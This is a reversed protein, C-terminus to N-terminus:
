FCPLPPRIPIRWFIRLVLFYYSRIKTRPRSLAPFVVMRLDRELSTNEMLLTLVDVGDSWGLAEVDFVEDVLPEFEVEPVDSPLMCQPLVPDVVDIICIGQDIDNIGCIGVSNFLCAKCQLFEKDLFFEGVHGQENEGVLLVQFRCSQRGIFDHLM